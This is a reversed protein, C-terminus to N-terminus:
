GGIQSMTRVDGEGGGGFEHHEPKGRIVGRIVEEVGEDGEGALAARLSVGRDMHLCAKLVGDATVRIRNCRGCIHRGLTDIFGIRGRFGRVGYYRAPGNGLVGDVAELVGFEEELIGRVWGGEVASFGAGMGMPMMEIFRVHVPRERALSAVGLVDGAGMGAFTVCNVKVVGIGAELVADIGELVASVDGGRTLWKYRQPDQTDLSVNVGDVGAARLGRAFSSLLVGNTTVTVSKVGSVAKVGEILGLVGKRVLPEGGTVKLRDIGLRAFCGCLRIIEDFSLIDEHRKKEVGEAPMCYRCRMNCRDTVSIRAYQIERGFSDRVAAGTM